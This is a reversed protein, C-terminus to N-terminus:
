SRGDGAAGLPADGVRAVCRSRSGHVRLRVRRADHVLLSLSTVGLIRGVPGQRRVTQHVAAVPVDYWTVWLFGRRFAVAGRRTVVDVRSWVRNAAVLALVAVVAAVGVGSGARAAEAALGGAVVAIASAAVLVAALGPRRDHRHQLMGAQAPFFQEVLLSLRDLRMVPFVVNAARSTGAERSVASMKAHGTLRMLPNQQVKLGAIQSQHLRRSEHWALGGTISLGGDHARVAFSRYRLWAIVGGYALSVACALLAAVSWAWWPSGAGVGLVVTADPLRVLPSVESYAGLLAPVVLLFQGYTVSVLLYDRPRMAYVLGHGAVVPPAVTAPSVRGVPEGSVPTVAPAAAGHVPVTPVSPAGSAVRGALAPVDRDRVAELVLVGRGQSGIGVRVRACGLARHLWSRSVQVSSVDGWSVAVDERVLAGSSLRVGDADVLWRTVWWAVVVHLLCCLAVVGLLVTVLSATGDGFREDASLRLLVVPVLLKLSDYARLVLMAPSNRAATWGTDGRPGPPLERPDVEERAGDGAGATVVAVEPM